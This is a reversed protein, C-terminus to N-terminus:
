ARVWDRIRLVERKDIPTHTSVSSRTYVSRVFGGVTDEVAQAAQAPNDLAAKKIGRKRLIFCVKQKMTPKPLGSELKCGKESVVDNDPALHDLTERLAERDSM